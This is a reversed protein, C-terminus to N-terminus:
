IKTNPPQILIILLIPKEGFVYIFDTSELYFHRVQINLYPM